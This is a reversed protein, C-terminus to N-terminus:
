FKFFDVVMSGLTGWYFLGEATLYDIFHNRREWISLM